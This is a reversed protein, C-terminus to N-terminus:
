SLQGKRLVRTFRSVFPEHPSERTEFRQVEHAASFIRDLYTKLSFGNPADACVGRARLVSACVGRCV